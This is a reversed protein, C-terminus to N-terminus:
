DLCYEEPINGTVPTRQVFRRYENKDSFQDMIIAPKLFEGLRGDGCYDRFSSWPYEDECGQWKKLERPNLHIYASLYNLYENQNIHIAQFKGGFLHGTRKHIINFYKTYSDGLRMMFRSIGGERLESLVLHYHNTMLCFGVLEVERHALVEKCIENDLRWRQVDSVIRSIKSIVTNGQLVILLTLFRWRDADNLFISRKEVGRNFIHFCEGEAFMSRPMCTNYGEILLQGVELTPLVYLTCFERFCEPFLQECSSKENRLPCPSSM